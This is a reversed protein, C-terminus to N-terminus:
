VVMGDEEEEEEDSSEAGRPAGPRKNAKDIEKRERMMRAMRTKLDSNRAKEAAGVKVQPASSSGQEEDEEHHEREDDRSERSEQHGQHGQHGQHRRKKMNKEFADLWVPVEHGAHIVADGVVGRRIVVSPVAVIGLSLVMARVKPTDISVCRIFGLDRSRRIRSLLDVSSRSFASYFYVCAEMQNKTQEPYRDGILLIHVCM